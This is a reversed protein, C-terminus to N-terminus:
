PYLNHVMIPSGVYEMVLIPVHVHHAKNLNAFIYECLIIYMQISSRKVKFLLSNTCLIHSM